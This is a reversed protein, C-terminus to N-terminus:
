EGLEGGTHYSFSNQGIANLRFWMPNKGFIFYLLIQRSRAQYIKSALEKNHHIWIIFILAESISKGFGMCVTVPESQYFYSLVSTSNIIEESNHLSFDTSLVWHLTHSESKTNWALNSRWSWPHETELPKSVLCAQVQLFSPWLGLIQSVSVIEQFYCNSYIHLSRHKIILEWQTMLPPTHSLPKSDTTM